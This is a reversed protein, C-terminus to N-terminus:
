GGYAVLALQYARVALYCCLASLAWNFLGFRVHLDKNTLLERRSRDKLWIMLLAQGLAFGGAFGLFGILYVM